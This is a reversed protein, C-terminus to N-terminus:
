KQSCIFYGSCYNKDKTLRTISPILLVLLLYPFYLIFRFPKIKLHVIKDRLIDLIITYFNGIEYTKIKKFKVQLKRRLLNKTLRIKDEHIKYMFPMSLFLIGHPKLVRYIETIAKELSYLYEFVEFCFVADFSNNKFQLNNVDGYIVNREKNEVIDIATIKGSFLHDYRRNKSGIDLIKGKIKPSFEKIKEELLNRHPSYKIYNLVSM